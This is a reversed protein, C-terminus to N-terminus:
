LTLIDADTVKSHGLSTNEHFKIDAMRVESFSAINADSLKHCQFATNHYIKSFQAVNILAM